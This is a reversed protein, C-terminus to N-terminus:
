STAPNVDISVHATPSAATLEAISATLEAIRRELEEIRTRLQANEQRLATETAALRDREERTRELHGRMRGIEQDLASVRRDMEARLERIMDRATSVEIAEAEAETKRGSADDLRNQARARLSTALGGFGGLAALIAALLQMTNM